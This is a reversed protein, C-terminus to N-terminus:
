AFRVDLPRVLPKFALPGLISGEPVMLLFGSNKEFSSLENVHHIIEFNSIKGQHVM